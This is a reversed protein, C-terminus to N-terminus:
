RSASRRRQKRMHLFDTKERHPENRPLDSYEKSEFGLNNIQDCLPENTIFLLIGINELVLFIVTIMVSIEGHHSSLKWLIINLM